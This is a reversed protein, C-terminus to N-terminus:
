DSSTHDRIIRWGEALKRFVLIFGGQPETKLGGLHWRGVVVAENDATLVIDLDSFTLKGMTEKTYNAKYSNITAQWGRRIKGGSTFILQKSKWYGEMFGDIDGRNWAQTQKALVAWIQGKEPIILAGNSEIWPNDTIGTADFLEETRRRIDQTDQASSEQKKPSQGGIEACCAGCSTSDSACSTLILLLGVVFLYNM